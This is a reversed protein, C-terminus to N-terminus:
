VKWWYFRQKQILKEESTQKWQSQQEGVHVSVRFCRRTEPFLAGHRESVHFTFLWIWWVGNLVVSHSLFIFIFAKRICILSQVLYDPKEKHSLNNIPYSPHIFLNTIFSAVWNPLDDFQQEDMNLEVSCSHTMNPSSQHLTGALDLLRLHDSKQAMMFGYKSVAFKMTSKELMKKAGLYSTAKTQEVIQLEAANHEFSGSRM